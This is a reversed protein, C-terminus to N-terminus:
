APTNRKPCSRTCENRHQEVYYNTTKRACPHSARQHGRRMRSYSEHRSNNGNPAYPGSWRSSLPAITAYLPAHASALVTVRLLVHTNRTDRDLPSGTALLQQILPAEAIPTTPVPTNSRMGPRANRDISRRSSHVGSEESSFDLSEVTDTVSSPRRRRGVHSHQTGRDAVVTAKSEDVAVLVPPATVERPSSACDCSRRYRPWAITNEYAEVEIEFLATCREGNAVYPKGCRPCM